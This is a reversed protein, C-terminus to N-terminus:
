MAGISNASFRKNSILLTIFGIVGAILLGFDEYISLSVAANFGILSWLLPIILLLIGIKKNVFLLVGFTFIITPCPLGFTPSYPYQHGLLNGLIPYLILAYLIFVAGLYNIVIKNFNYSISNKFTGFYLFLLGQLIFLSGFIYAAKNITTFFIFNYVIGIWIWYFSLIGNIIKNRGKIEKFLIYIIIIASLYFIIQMPFVAENYTKFVNLFQDITFPFNM